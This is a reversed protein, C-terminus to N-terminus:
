SQGGHLLIKRCVINVVIVFMSSCAGALAFMCGINLHLVVLLFKPDDRLSWLLGINSVTFCFVICSPILRMNNGLFFIERQYPHRLVCLMTSYPIIM